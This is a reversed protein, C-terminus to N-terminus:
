VNRRVRRETQLFTAGFFIYDRSRVSIVKTMKQVDFNRIQDYTKRVSSIHRYHNRDEHIKLSL